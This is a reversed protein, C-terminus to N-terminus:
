DIQSRKSKEPPKELKLQKKQSMTSAFLIEFALNSKSASGERISLSFPPAQIRSIKLKATEPKKTAFKQRIDM